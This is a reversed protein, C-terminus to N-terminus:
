TAFAHMSDPPKVSPGAATQMCHTETYRYASRGDWDASVKDINGPPKAHLMPM